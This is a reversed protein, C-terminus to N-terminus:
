IAARELVTRIARLAEIADTYSGADEWLDRWESGNDVIRDLARLALSPMDAPIDLTGGELLFNPACATVLPKGSPLQCAVMAAAAVARDALRGALYRDDNDVVACLTDRVLPLRREEAADHLDGCWDAATDNDFPGVGV